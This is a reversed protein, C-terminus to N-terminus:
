GQRERWEGVAREINEPIVRDGDKRIQDRAVMVAPDEEVRRPTQSQERVEGTQIWHGPDWEKAWVCISQDYLRKRVGAAM